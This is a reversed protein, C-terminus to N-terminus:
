SKDCPTSPISHKQLLSHVRVESARQGALHERLLHADDILKWKTRADYDGGGRRFTQLAEALDAPLNLAATAPPAAEEEAEVKALRRALAAYHLLIAKQRRTPVEAIAGLLVEKHVLTAGVLFKQLKKFRQRLANASIHPLNQLKFDSLSKSQARATWSTALVELSDEVRKDNQLLLLELQKMDAAAAADLSNMATVNSGVMPLNSRAIAGTDDGSVTVGNRSAAAMVLLAGIAVASCGRM